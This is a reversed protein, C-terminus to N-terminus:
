QRAEKPLKALESLPIEFDYWQLVKEGDDYEDIRMWPYNRSTARAKRWELAPKQEQEAPLSEIFSLLSKLDLAIRTSEALEGLPATVNTVRLKIRREIEAKIRETNTM